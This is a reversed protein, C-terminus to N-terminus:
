RSLVHIGELHEVDTTQKVISDRKGDRSKKVVGESMTAYHNTENKV